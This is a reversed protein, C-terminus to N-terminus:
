INSKKYLVRVSFALILLTVRLTFWALPIFNIRYTKSLIKKSVGQDQFITKLAEWMGRHKHQYGVAITESSKTQQHTKVLFVPSAAVQGAIGAIGSVLVSKYFISNGHQDFVYKKEM